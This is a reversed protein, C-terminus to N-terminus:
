YVRFMMKFNSNMPHSGDFTTNIYLKNEVNEVFLQNHTSFRNDSKDIEIFPETVIQVFDGRSQNQYKIRFALIAEPQLLEPM